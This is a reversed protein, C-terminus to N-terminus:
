VTTSGGGRGRWGGGVGGSLRPVTRPRSWTLEEFRRRHLVHHGALGPIDEPGDLPDRVMHPQFRESVIITDYTGEGDPPPVVLYEEVDQAAPVRGLDAHLPHCLIRRRRCPPRDHVARIM